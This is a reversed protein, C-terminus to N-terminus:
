RRLGETMPIWHESHDVTSQDEESKLCDKVPDGFRYFIGASIATVAAIVYRFERDYYRVTKWEDISLWVLIVSLCMLWVIEGIGIEKKAIKVFDRLFSATIIGALIPEAVLDYAIRIPYFDNAGVRMLGLFLWAIYRIAVIYDPPWHGTRKKERRGLYLVTVFIMVIVFAAIITAYLVNPDVYKAQATGSNAFCGRSFLLLILGLIKSGRDPM